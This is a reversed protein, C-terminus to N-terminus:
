ANPNNQKTRWLKKMTVSIQYRM